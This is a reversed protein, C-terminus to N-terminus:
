AVVKMRTNSPDLGDLTAGTGRMTFLFDLIDRTIKEGPLLLPIGPPYVTVIDAALRGEAEELPVLVHSSFFAERPSIKGPNLAYPKQFGASFTPPSAHHSQGAITELSAVLRDIDDRHDGISVIVLIHMLDAMEVQIGFEQNLRQSVQYGTMGLGSVGITLKTEDLDNDGASLSQVEMRDICTLGPIKRIRDRGRKALDLAKGLLKRGETAMQMRALDLSAM